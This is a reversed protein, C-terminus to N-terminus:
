LPGHEQVRELGQGQREGPQQARHHSAPGGGGHRLQVLLYFEVACSLLQLNRVVDFISRIAEGVVLEVHWLLVGGEVVAILLLLGSSSAAAALAAALPELQVVNNRVVAGRRSWHHHRPLLSFFFVRFQSCFKHILLPFTIQILVVGMTTTHFVQRM